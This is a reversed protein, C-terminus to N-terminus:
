SINTVMLVHYQNYGPHQPCVDVITGIMKQQDGLQQSLDAGIIPPQPLPETLIISKLQQKLKGRYHMRAIIEQGTYCGKDFSVAHLAPLNLEHPLFKSSTAPHIHPIGDTIDLCLWEDDHAHFKEPETNEQKERIIMHRTATVPITVISNTVLTNTTTMGVIEFLNSVDNLETKYFIAYKKLAHLAIPIMERLMVLYYAEQWQFLYFLSIIRGQPNCHAGMCSTTDQLKTVDCTLQGQLFKQADSGSIKLLGHHSLSILTNPM